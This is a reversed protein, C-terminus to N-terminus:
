SAVYSKRARAKAGPRKVRVELKHIKGDRAEPSFGILYQSHLEESVRTFTSTLQDKDDLEFYGGGTEDALKRLRRDPRTTMPRGGPGPESGRLGIAYVMAEESRARDQTSGFDAKSATDAGDTFVLVVRRGELGSLSDLGAHVADWLRTPYGYDV